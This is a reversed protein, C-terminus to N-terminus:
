HRHIGPLRIVQSVAQHHGSGAHPTPRCPAFTLLWGPRWIPVPIPQQGLLAALQTQYTQWANTM